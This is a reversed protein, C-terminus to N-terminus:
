FFVILFNISFRDFDNKLFGSCAFDANFDANFDSIPKRKFVRGVFAAACLPAM